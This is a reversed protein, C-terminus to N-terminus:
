ECDDRRHNQGEISCGQRGEAPPTAPQHKHQQSEDAQDRSTQDHEGPPPIPAPQVVDCRQALPERLFGSFQLAKQTLLSRHATRDDGNKGM